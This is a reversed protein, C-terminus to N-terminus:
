IQSLRDLFLVKLWIYSALYKQVDIKIGGCVWKKADIGL